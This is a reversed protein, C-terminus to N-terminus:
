STAAVALWDVSGPLRGEAREPRGGGRGGHRRALDKLWAGADFSADAGREIAVLWDGGDRPRSAVLAVVDPRRALAAALARLAGLDDGERAIVLRASEGPIPPAAALAREAVLRVLEGRANGLQESRERLDARLKEIAGGVDFPGCSMGRALERLADDKRRHDALARRGALFTVRFLGKYREISSIRVPGVQGTRACHTGGCPSCDFGAVEIVRVGEQVKPARRLPLAALEDPSPFLVRIPLDDLIVDNTLDEARHLAGEDLSPAAVDITSTAEGLRASSTEAGAARLLAASLLHQGTHQAMLDRRRVGDLRGEIEAGEINEPAEGGLLHHVRDEDDLQVDVVELALPGLLLQGRDAPQGGGEPFFASRDLLLSPRGRFSARRLVRGRFPELSPDALYLRETAM